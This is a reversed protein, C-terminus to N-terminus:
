PSVDTRRESRLVPERRKGHRLPKSRAPLHKPWAWVLDAQMGTPMSADERRGADQRRHRARATRLTDRVTDRVSCKWRSQSSGLARYRRM